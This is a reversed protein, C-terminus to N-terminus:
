GNAWDKVLEDGRMHWGYPQLVRRWGKRGVVRGNTAGAQKSAEIITEIYPLAALITGGALWIELTDGDIRTVLAAVPRNEVALWLQARGDGVQAHVESWDNGGRAVAKDLLRAIEDRYSGVNEPPVFGIV